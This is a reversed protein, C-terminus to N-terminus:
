TIFLGLLLKAEEELFPVRLDLMLNNGTNVYLLSSLAELSDCLELVTLHMPMWFLLSIDRFSPESLDTKLKGKKNGKIYSCTAQGLKRSYWRDFASPCSYMYMWHNPTAYDIIM